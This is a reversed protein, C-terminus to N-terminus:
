WTVTVPQRLMQLMSPFQAQRVGAGLGRGEGGESLPGGEGCCLEVPGLLTGAVLAQRKLATGTETPGASPEM